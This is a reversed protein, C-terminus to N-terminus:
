HLAKPGFCEPFCMCIITLTPSVLSEYATLNTKQVTGFFNADLSLVLRRSPLEMVIRKQLCCGQNIDLFVGVTFTCM